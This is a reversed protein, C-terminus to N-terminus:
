LYCQLSKIEREEAESLIHRDDRPWQKFPWRIFAVIPPCSLGVFQADECLVHWYAILVGGVTGRSSQSPHLRKLLSVLQSKPSHYVAEVFLGKSLTETVGWTPRVFPSIPCENTQVCRLVEFSWASLFSARQGTIVQMIWSPYRCRARCYLDKRSAITTLAYM